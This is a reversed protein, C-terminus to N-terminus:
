LDSIAEQIVSVRYGFLRVDYVIGKTEVDFAKM